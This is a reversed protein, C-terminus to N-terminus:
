WHVWGTVLNFGGFGISVGLGWKFGWDRALELGKDGVGVFGVGPGDLCGGGGVWGFGMM